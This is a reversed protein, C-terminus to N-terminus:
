AVGHFDAELNQSSNLFFSWKIMLAASSSAFFDADATNEDCLFFVKQSHLWYLSL